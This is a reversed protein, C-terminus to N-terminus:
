GCVATRIEDLLTALEGAGAGTAFHSGLVTGDTDLRQGADALQDCAGTLDGAAELETATVLMGRLAAFREQASQGPGAAILTGEAALEDYRALADGTDLLPRSTGNLTYALDRGPFSPGVEGGSGVSLIRAGESSGAGVVVGRFGVWYVGPELVVPDDFLLTDDVSLDDFTAPQLSLPTLSAAPDGGREDAFFAVEPSEPPFELAISEPVRTTVSSVTWEEGAPVEFRSAEFSLNNRLRNAATVDSNYLPGETTATAPGIGVVAVLAGTLAASLGMLATRVTRPRMRITRDQRPDGIVASDVVPLRRRADTM